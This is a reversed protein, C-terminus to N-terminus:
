TLKHKSYIDVPHVLPFVQECRHGEKWQLPMHKNHLERFLVYAIEFTDGAELSAQFSWFNVTIM